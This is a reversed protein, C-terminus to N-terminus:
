NISALIDDRTIHMPILDSRRAEIAEEWGDAPGTELMERLVSFSVKEKIGYQAQRKYM